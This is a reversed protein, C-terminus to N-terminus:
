MAIMTLEMGATAETELPLVDRPEQSALMRERRELDLDLSGSKSVLEMLGDDYWESVLAHGEVLPTTVPRSELSPM